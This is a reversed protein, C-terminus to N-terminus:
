ADQSLVADNNKDAIYRRVYDIRLPEVREKASALVHQAAIQVDAAFKNNGRPIKGKGKVGSHVVRTLDSMQFCETRIRRFTVENAGTAVLPVGIGDHVGCLEIRCRPPM